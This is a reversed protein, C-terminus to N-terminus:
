NPPALIQADYSLSNYVVYLRESPFGKGQLLAKAHDRYLLPGWALRYLFRRIWWKPGSEDALLGHGWLLVPIKRFRALLTLAWATLSYPAGLAIIVYPRTKWFFHLAGGQWTLRQGAPLRIERVHAAYHRIGNVDGIGFTKLFPAGPQMGVVVTCRIQGCACLLSYIDRRYHALYDNQLM